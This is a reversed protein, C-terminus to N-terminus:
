SGNKVETEAAVSDRAKRVTEFVKEVIVLADHLGDVVGCLRGANFASAITGEIPFKRARARAADLEVRLVDIMGQRTAEDSQVLIDHVVRATMTRRPIQVDHIPKKASASNSMPSDGNGLKFENQKMSSKKIKKATRHFSEGISHSDGFGHM